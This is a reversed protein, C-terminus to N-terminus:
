KPKVVAVYHLYRVDALVNCLLFNIIRFNRSHTPHIGEITLIEFGLNSFMKLISKRTFFRLHTKDLVGQDKYDWNGHIVLSVLTRYYRINPISVVIVGNKTLKTKTACLLSYPDVLHELIDFFIICDFYNEPIDKLSETADSNIVKDLRKVAEQAAEKDIEVAWAEADFREKVLASFGGFGCGFELSTKTGQPIYKLMDERNSEYYGTPKNSLNDLVVSM